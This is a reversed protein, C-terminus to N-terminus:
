LVPLAGGSCSTQGNPEDLVLVLSGTSANKPGLTGCSAEDIGPPSGLLQVGFARWVPACRKSIPSCHAAPEACRSRVVQQLPTSGLSLAQGFVLRTAYTTNSITEM